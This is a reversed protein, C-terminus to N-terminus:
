NVSVSGRGIEKGSGKGSYPLKERKGKERRDSGRPMDM